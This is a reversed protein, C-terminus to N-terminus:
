DKRTNGVIGLRQMPPYRRDIIKRLTQARFRYRGSREMIGALNRSTLRGNNALKENAERLVAEIEQKLRADKESLGPMAAPVLPIVGDDIHEVPPHPVCGALLGAFRAKEEHLRELYDRERDRAQKRSVCADIRARLLVPDISRSVLDEAGAEICRAAGDASEGDVIMLVATRRLREDAKLRALVEFGSMEPMAMELLVLDFEDARMLALAERGGAAGTVECGGDGLRRVLAERGAEGHDVVLVRGESSGNVGNAGETGNSDRRSGNALGNPPALAADLEALLRTTERVLRENLRRLERNADYFERGREEASKKFVQLARAVEGIEGPGHSTPVPVSADGGALARMTTTLRALPQVIWRTVIWATFAGAVLAAILIVVSIVFQRFGAAEEQRALSQTAEVAVEGLQHVPAIAETSGALWADADIPYEAGEVGALVVPSRLREFADFYGQRVEAIAALVEAPAGPARGYGEITAWAQDLRGRLAPLQVLEELVLPDGAAIIGGILATEREAFEGMVWAAHRLDRLAEIGPLTARRGERTAAGLRQSAVILETIALFWTELVVQDRAPRPKGLADDVRDRLAQVGDIRSETQVILQRREAGDPRARLRELADSIAAEAGRRQEDIAQRRTATAAEPGQLAAQALAREGAWARAASHLRAEITASRLIGHAEDRRAQAELMAGAMLWVLVLFGVGVLFFLANRVTLFASM